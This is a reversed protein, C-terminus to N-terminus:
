EGAIHWWAHRVLAHLAHHEGDLVVGDVLGMAGEATHACVYIVARAFRSDQMNPMAILLQGTLYGAQANQEAM